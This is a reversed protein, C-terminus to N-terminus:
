ADKNSARARVKAEFWAEMETQTLFEGRDIQREAEDLSEIFAAEEEAVQRIAQAAFWSRSRGSERALRDVLEFTADDVRATIVQGM